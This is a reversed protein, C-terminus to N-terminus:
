CRSWLRLPRGYLPLPRDAVCGLQISLAHQSETLRRGGVGAVSGVHTSVGERFSQGGGHEGPHRWGEVIGKFGSDYGTELSQVVEDGDWGFSGSFEIM